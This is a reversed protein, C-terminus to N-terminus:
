GREGIEVSSYILHSGLLGELFLEIGVFYRFLLEITRSVKKIEIRRHPMHQFIGLSLQDNGYRHFHIASINLYKLTIAHLVINGAARRFSSNTIVRVNRKTFYL